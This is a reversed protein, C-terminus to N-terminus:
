DWVYIAVVDEPRMNRMVSVDEPPLFCRLECTKARGAGASVRVLKRGLRHDLEGDVCGAGPFMLATASPSSSVVPLSTQASTSVRTCFHFIDVSPHSSIKISTSIASSTRFAKLSVNSPIDGSSLSNSKSSTSM